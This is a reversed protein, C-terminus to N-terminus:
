SVTEPPGLVLEAISLGDLFDKSQNIKSQKVSQDISQLLGAPLSFAPLSYTLLYLSQSRCIPCCASNFQDLPCQDPSTLECVTVSCLVQGSELCTCQTCEDVLWSEGVSYVDSNYTCYESM